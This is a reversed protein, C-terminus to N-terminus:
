GYDDDTAWWWYDSGGDDAPADLRSGDLLARTLRGVLVGYPLCDVPLPIVRRAWRLAPIRRAANRDLGLDVIPTASTAGVTVRARQITDDDPQAAHLVYVPVDPRDSVLRRALDTAFAPYGGSSVVLAKAGIHVGSLVLLDVVERTDVVLVREAGYDFLDPEGWRSPSAADFMPTAILGPLRHVEDLSIVAGQTDRFKNRRKRTSFGLYFRRRCAIAGVVQNVTFARGNQGIRSAARSVARDGIHPRQKPDLAYHYGCLCLM